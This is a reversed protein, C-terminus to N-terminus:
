TQDFAVGGRRLHIRRATFHVPAEDVAAESRNLKTASEIPWSAAPTRVSCLHLPYVKGFLHNLEADLFVSTKIQVSAHKVCTM